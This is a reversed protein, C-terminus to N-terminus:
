LLHDPERYALSRNRTGPAMQLRSHMMLLRTRSPILRRSLPLMKEPEDRTREITLSNATNRRVVDILVTMLYTRTVDGKVGRRVASTILITGSRKEGGREVRREAKKRDMAIGIVASKGVTM